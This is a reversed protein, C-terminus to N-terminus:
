RQPSSPVLPPSSYAQVCLSPQTEFGDGMSQGSRSAPLFAEQPFAGPVPVAEIVALNNRNSVRTNICQSKEGWGEEGVVAVVVGVPM